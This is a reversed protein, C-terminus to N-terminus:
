VKVWGKSTSAILEKKRLAQLRRDLIRFAPSIDYESAAIKICEKEVAGGFIGSFTKPTDSIKILILADLDDYKAM